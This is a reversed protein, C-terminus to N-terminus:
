LIEYKDEMTSQLIAIIKKFFPQWTKSDSHGLAAIEYMKIQFSNERSYFNKYM